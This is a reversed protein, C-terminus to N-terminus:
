DLSPPTPPRGIRIELRCISDCFRNTFNGDDGAKVFHPLFPLPTHAPNPDHSLTTRVNELGFQKTQQCTEHKQKM